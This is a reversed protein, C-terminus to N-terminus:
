RVVIWNLRLMSVLAIVRLVFTSEDGWTASAATTARGRRAAGLLRGLVQHEQVGAGVPVLEEHDVAVDGQDARRGAVDGLGDNQLALALRRHREDLPRLAGVGAVQGEFEGRVRRAGDGMVLVVAELDPLVAARRDIM